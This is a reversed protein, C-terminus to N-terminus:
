HRSVRARADMALSQPSTAIVLIRSSTNPAFAFYASLKPSLPLRSNGGLRWNAIKVQMSERSSGAFVGAKGFAIGMHEPISATPCAVVGRTM